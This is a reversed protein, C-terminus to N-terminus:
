KFETSLHTKRIKEKTEETHPHGQIHKGKNWAEKGSNSDSIKKVGDSTEKTLGKNWVSYDPQKSLYQSINDVGYKDKVSQKMNSINKAVREDTEKTLGKNWAVYSNNEIRAKRTAQGNAKVREDTEATKGKNWPNAKITRGPYFGDPIEDGEKVKITVKGDTYFKFKSENLIKFKM